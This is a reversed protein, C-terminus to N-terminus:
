ITSGIPIHAMDLLGSRLVIRVRSVVTTEMTAASAHTKDLWAFALRGAASAFTPACSKDIRAADITSRTRRRSGVIRRSRGATVFIACHRFRHPRDATAARMSAPTSVACGRNRGGTSCGVGKQLM